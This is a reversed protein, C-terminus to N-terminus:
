PTDPACGASSISSASSFAHSSRPPQHPEAHEVLRRNGLTDRPRLRQLVREVERPEGVPEAVVAVPEGLVVAEREGARRRLHQGARHRRGGLPDADAAAAHHERVVRRELDGLAEAQQGAQEGAADVEREAARRAGVRQGGVRELAVAAVDRGVVERLLEGLQEGVVVAAQGGVM